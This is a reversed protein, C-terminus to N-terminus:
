QRQLGWVCTLHTAGPQGFWWRSLLWTMRGGGGAAENAGKLLHWSSFKDETVSLFRFSLVSQTEKQSQGSSFEM